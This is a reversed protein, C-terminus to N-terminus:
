MNSYNKLSCNTTQPKNNTTRETTIGSNIRVEHVKLCGCVMFRLCCVITQATKTKWIM